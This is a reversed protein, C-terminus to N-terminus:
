EVLVLANQRWPPLTPDIVMVVPDVIDVMVGAADGPDSWGSVEDISDVGKVKAAM